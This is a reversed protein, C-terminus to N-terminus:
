KAKKEMKSALSYYLVLAAGSFLFLCAVTIEEESREPVLQGVFFALGIAVLVTGWKLSSPIGYEEPKQFLNQLNKDVMGKDILKHRIKNDSVQKVIAAIGWFIVGLVLVPMLDNMADEM